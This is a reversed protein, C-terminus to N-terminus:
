NKEINKENKDNNNITDNRDRKQRTETENQTDNTNDNKTDNTYNKLDQFYGYKSVNIIISRTTKRTTIQTTTRLYRIVNDVTEVGIRDLSLHCNEYIQKRSFMNEGRKFFKNDKHNVEMLIYNWVKLWWAPKNIWIDSQQIQRALLICGDPIKAM